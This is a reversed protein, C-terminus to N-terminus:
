AANGPYPKETHNGWIDKTTNLERLTESLPQGGNWYHYKPDAAFPIIIAGTTDIYPSDKPPMNSIKRKRSM